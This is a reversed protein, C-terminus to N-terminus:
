KNIKYLSAIEAPTRQVASERNWSWRLGLEELTNDCTIGSNVYVRNIYISNIKPTRYRMNGDRSKSPDRLNGTHTTKDSSHCM